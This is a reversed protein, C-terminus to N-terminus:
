KNMAEVYNLMVNVKRQFEPTMAADHTAKRRALRAFLASVKDVLDRLLNARKANTTSQDLLVARVDSPVDLMNKRVLGIVDERPVRHEHALCDEVLLRLEKLAREAAYPSNKANSLRDVWFALRSPAVAEANALTVPPPKAGTGLLLSRGAIIAGVLVLVSLWASQPVSNVVLGAMWGLASLPIVVLDRVANRLAITLVLTLIMVGTVILVHRPAISSWAFIARKM